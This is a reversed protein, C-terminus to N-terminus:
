RLLAGLSEVSPADIVRVALAWGFGARGLAALDRDRRIARQGPDRYPGLRRRRALAIAASLDPDVEGDALADLASAIASAPVGKSALRGRIVSRALGRRALTVARAEAWAADDVLGAAELRAVIADVRSRAEAVDVESGAALARAIRRRLMARLSAATGGYREVWRRAAGWLAPDDLDPPRRTM